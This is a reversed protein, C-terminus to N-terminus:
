KRKDWPPMPYVVKATALNKPWVVELKGKLWQLVIGKMEHNQGDPAFRVKGGPTMVDTERLAKLIAEPATSGARKLADAIVYMDTYGCEILHDPTRGHKKKFAEVFKRNEPTPISEHWAFASTVYECNGGTKEWFSADGFGGGLTINAPVNANLEKMQRILLLHDGMLAINLLVDPRASDVKLILSSLDLSGGKFVEDLLVKIGYQETHKRYLTRGAEGLATDATAIVATKVGLEKLMVFASESWYGMHPMTRFIYKLGRETIIQSAALGVMPIKYKEAMDSVVITGGTTYEGWIITVKDKTILSEAVMGAMKPESQTDSKLLRLKAGGLSKIGGATNIEDIAMEAGTLANRVAYAASGTIGLPAGILVESVKAQAGASNVFGLSTVLLACAFFSFLATKRM